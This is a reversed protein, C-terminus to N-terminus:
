DEAKFANIIQQAHDKLNVSDIINIVTGAGNILVTRRKPFFWNLFGAFRAGYLLAIKKDTDALLTFPFHHRETFAQHTPPTDNSVGLVVIGADQLQQYGDRLSCLEKTCGYSNDKPYFVLAVKQGRYDHLNHIAGNQAQATFDPAAQGIIVAM